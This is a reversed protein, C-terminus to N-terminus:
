IMNKGKQRDKKFEFNFFNALFAFSKKMFNYIKGISINIVKTLLELNEAIIIEKILLKVLPILKRNSIAFNECIDVAGHLDLRAVCNFMKLGEFESQALNYHPTDDLISKILDFIINFKEPDQINSYLDKLVGFM